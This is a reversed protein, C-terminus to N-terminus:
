RGRVLVADAGAAVEIRTAAHSERNRRFGVDVHLAAVGVGPELLGTEAADVQVADTETGAALDQDALLRIDPRFVAIRVVFEADVAVLDRQRHARAELSRGRYSLPATRRPRGKKRHIASLGSQAVTRSM